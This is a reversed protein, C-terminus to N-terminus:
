TAAFVRHDRGGGVVAPEVAVVRHEFAQEGEFAGARVPNQRIERRLRRLLDLRAPLGGAEAVDNRAFRLSDMWGNHRSISQKAESAIVPDLPTGRWGVARINCRTLSRLGKAVADGTGM